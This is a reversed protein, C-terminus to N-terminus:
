ARGRLQEVHHVVDAVAEQHRKDAQERANQDAPDHTRLPDDGLDLFVALVEAAGLEVAHHHLIDDRDDHENQKQGGRPEAAQDEASLYSIKAFFPVSARERKRREFYAFHTKGGRPKKDFACIEKEGSSM